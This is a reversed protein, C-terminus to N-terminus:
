DKLLQEINILNREKAYFLANHGQNDKITKDAGYSLLLKVIEVYNITDKGFIAIELLATRSLNDIHNVEIDTNELLFRTTELHGKECALILANAGYINLINKTDAEKYMIKLINIYGKECAYLFPSNLKQDQINVDAGNDILLKAMKMDNKYMAIMLGTRRMEDQVNINIGMEIYQNASKLNGSHVASFFAGKIDETNASILINSILLSIVIFKIIFRM